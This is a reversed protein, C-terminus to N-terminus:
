ATFVRVTGEYVSNGLTHLRKPPAIPLDISEGRANAPIHRLKKPQIDLRVKELPTVQYRPQLRTFYMKRAVQRGGLLALLHVVDHRARNCVATNGVKAYLVAFGQGHNRRLATGAVAKEFTGGGVLPYAFQRGVRKLDRENGLVFVGVVHKYLSRDVGKKLLARCLRNKVSVATYCRANEQGHYVFRGRKTRM